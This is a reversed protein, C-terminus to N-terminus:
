IGGESTESQGEGPPNRKTKAEPFLKERDEEVDGGSFAGDTRLDTGGGPIGSGAGGGSNGDSAGPGGGIRNSDDPDTLDRQDNPDSM